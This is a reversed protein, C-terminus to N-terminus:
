LAHWLHTRLCPESIKPVAPFQDPKSARAPRWKSRKANCISFRSHDHPARCGCPPRRAHSPAPAQACSRGRRARLRLLAGRRRVRQIPAGRRRWPHRRDSGLRLRLGRGRRTWSFECWADAVAKGCERKQAVCDGLGYGDDAITYVNDKAPAARASQLATSALVLGSLLPALVRLWDVRATQSPHLMM